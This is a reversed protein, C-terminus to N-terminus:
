RSTVASEEPRDPTDATPTPSRERYLGTVAARRDRIALVWDSAGLCV